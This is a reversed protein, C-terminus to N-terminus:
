FVFKLGFQMQRAPEATSFIRGFNSSFAIRGPIDFHPTNLVNFVEWRFEARRGERFKFSRQLSMDLNGLGPGTVVNRGATGFTFPAPQVFATTDFWRQPDREDRPLNPNRLLDPRQAPGTGVNARDVGNVVTFPAGSQMTVIGGLQWGKPLEYVLSSVFRHRHDYSSLGKEADLNRVNQPLNQEYATPGPDSADDISKSWSYNTALTLRGSLRREVRATLANYNGWGNWRITRISSLQPVPRRPDIPGEGPLPVNLVGGNDAGVTHNGMYGVEIVTSPTLQRQLSLTWTQTYETRYDHDMTNGSINGVATSTLIDSTRLVPILADVPTNVNKLLFFPLNRAFAQQVSYAWQNLFIGYGARVVTTQKGPLTWALGFRPAYRRYSPRLLGRDWGAEATTTYPLPLSPLLATAASSINGNNDSAIVYRGGPVTLDVASLRNEVDRMHQNYEYRLGINLTLGKVAEWDDQVYGHIWNTRANEEGRGIGVSASSPYGLLFDAFANGDTAGSRSSTWRNTFAFAGRATDPDSPRFMLHFWSAGFKIKHRGRNILVNDYLDFSRNARYVFSTPDGITSQVGAFSIQPYGVDRPDPNVGRLGARAAFNENQNISSQGGSVDLYGFRIENLVNNSFFHSYSLALNYTRTTVNRGFGPILSENLTSTGFPQLSGVDYLSFRGFVSDQNSVRHDLRVNFQDMDTTEKESAVLNQTTGPRNPLPVKALFARAIPDIQSSPIQNDPFVARQGTISNTSSPNYIAPLGTFDGRRMTDTPVTFTKTVSRRIRQGEYNGFFFTHDKRVPGGLTGGFQNLRLPPIPANPDDFFNKADFIDNRLFEFATGHFANGGSKTAVNVLASAKGGFEAPYQSKQIKFEQIADVSPSVVLNNFYEDTVKVGDLLYINHGSRQGDVNVVNGAQQLASGRTGAPPKIVGDSLLALDMFQRGNLPLNLIRVNDVVDSVEANATQLLPAAVDIVTVEESTPGIELQFDLRVTKGIEVVVGSQNVRKFGEAEVTVVYEGVPLNLLLYDGNPDSIQTFQAGTARHVATVMTGPLVGGTIDQVTGTIQATNSQAWGSSALYLIVAFLQTYRVFGMGASYILLLGPLEGKKQAKQAEKRERRDIVAPKITQDKFFRRDYVAAVIPINHHAFRNM